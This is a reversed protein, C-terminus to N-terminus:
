STPARFVQVVAFSDNGIDRNRMTVFTVAECISYWISIYSRYRSCGDALKNSINRICLLVAKNIVSQKSCINYPAYTHSFVFSSQVWIVYMTSQMCPFIM